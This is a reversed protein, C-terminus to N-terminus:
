IIITSKRKAEFTPNLKSSNMLSEILTEKVEPDEFYSDWLRHALKLFENETFRKAQSM